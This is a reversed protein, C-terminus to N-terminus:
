GNFCNGDHNSDVHISPRGSMDIALCRKSINSELPSSLELQYQGPSTLRGHGNYALPIESPANIAVSPTGIQSSLVVDGVQVDYGNAFNGGHPAITVVANRKIAESRAYSTAAYIDFTATKVRQTAIMTSASPVATASLVGVIGLTVMLETLTFGCEGRWM